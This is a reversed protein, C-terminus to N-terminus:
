SAITCRPSLMIKEFSQVVFSWHEVSKALILGSCPAIRHLRPRAAGTFKLVIPREGGGQVSAADGRRAPAFPFRCRPLRIWDAKANRPVVVFDRQRIGDKGAISEDQSDSVRVAIQDRDAVGEAL